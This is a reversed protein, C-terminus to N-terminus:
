SPFRNVNAVVCTAPGPRAGSVATGSADMRSMTVSQGVGLSNSVTNIEGIRAGSADAVGITVMHSQPQDTKNTVKVIAHTSSFGSASTVACDSVAVDSMTAPNRGINQLNSGLKDVAGFVVVIGWIGLAAAGVGLVTGIVTM